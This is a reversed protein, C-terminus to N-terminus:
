FKGKITLTIVLCVAMVALFVGWRQWWSPQKATQKTHDREAVKYITDTKVTRITDTKTQVRDRWRDRYIAVRITDGHPSLTVTRETEIRLTDTRLDTRVKYFTDTKSVRLTDHVAVYETVSKTKCGTLVMILLFTLWAGLIWYLTKTKM